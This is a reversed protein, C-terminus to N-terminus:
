GVRVVFVVFHSCLIVFIVDEYVDSQTSQSIGPARRPLTKM